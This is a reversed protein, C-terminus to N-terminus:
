DLIEVVIKGSRGTQQAHQLADRIARMPYRAEVQTHVRGETLYGGLRDYLETLASYSMREITRSLWFGRIHIDRFVLHEPRISLARSSLGGYVMLTGGEVLCEALRGSTDGGVPDVAFKVGNGVVKRVREPLDVGDVLVADAGLQTLTEVTEERRVVNVTKLGLVKALQIVNGGVASNAASQLIWDGGTLAISSLLLSATGPNVKLMAQQLTDGAASVKLVKSAAVRKFETWNGTELVIVRDGERLQEVGSGLAVVIGVAETGVTASGNGPRPYVGQMTLLDAPNIPFAIVRVLVEGVGPQGPAPVDVCRAVEHPTGPESFQIQKM